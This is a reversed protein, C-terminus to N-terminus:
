VEAVEELAYQSELKAVLERWASQETEGNHREGFMLALQAGESDFVELSTVIGDKTPKRVIWAQGIQTTDAHLNFAPDLVNFWPGTRKLHKIKGTHIQIVGPSGVFIMISLERSAAATLAAEFAESAVERAYEARVSRYAPIRTIGHKKLLTQFHHVDLLESWGQELEDSNLADPVTLLDEVHKASVPVPQTQDDARHAAILVDFAADNTEAVAYIKHVAEGYGDFFQLSKRTGHATEEVVSFATVFRNFFIRLDIVGLALGMNGNVRVDKYQGTKEHVMANNRTLAMVPGLTEIEALIAKFDSKLRLVGSNSFQGLAVLEAETVGLIAAANRIRLNPTESKLAQFRQALDQYAQNMM